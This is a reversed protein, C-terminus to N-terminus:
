VKRKNYLYVFFSGGILTTIVGVPVQNPLYARTITDAALLFIAGILAIVIISKKNDSGIFMRGIHPVVLGLFGIIGALSVSLAVLVSSLVVMIKFIKDYEVGTILAEERGLMMINLQNRYQYIIIIIVLMVSGYIAVENLQKGSLSGMLFSVIVYVEEDALYKIFTIASALITGIIVGSLVVNTIHYSGKRSSLKIVALLTLIAFVIAFLETPLPFGWIISFYLALTAGFAAGSSTGLTTASALPNNLLIQIIHGSVALSSGIIIAVLIRPLRIDLFIARSIDKDLNNTNVHGSFLAGISILVLLLILFLVIKTHKKIVGM